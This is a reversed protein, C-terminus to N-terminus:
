KSNTVKSPILTYYLHGHYLTFQKVHAVILVTM